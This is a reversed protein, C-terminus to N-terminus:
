DIINLKANKRNAAVLFYRAYIVASVRDRSIASNLITPKVDYVMRDRTM